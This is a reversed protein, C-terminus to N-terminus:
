GRSPDEGQIPRDRVVNLRRLITGKQQRDNARVSGCVGDTLRLRLVGISSGFVPTLLTVVNVGAESQRMRSVHQSDAATEGRQHQNRGCRNSVRGDAFAPRRRRLRAHRAAVVALRARHM